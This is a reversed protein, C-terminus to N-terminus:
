SNRITFRGYISSTDTFAVQLKSDEPQIVFGIQGAKKSCSNFLFSLIIFSLLSFVASSIISKSIKESLKIMFNITRLMIIRM